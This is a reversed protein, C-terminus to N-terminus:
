LAVVFGAFYRSDLRLDANLPLGPVGAVGACEIAVVDKLLIPWFCVDGLAWCLLREDTSHGIRTILALRTRGPRACDRRKPGYKFADM